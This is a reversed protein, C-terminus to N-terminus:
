SQGWHVQRLPFEACLDRVAAGVEARVAEDLHWIRDGDPRVASLVRDVLGACRIVADDTLGRAALINTGFRLGSTVLPGHPDGDIVNKNAVIGCSELAQEAIVGTLGAQGVDVLVLHNDTGGTLVEYGAGMLEVALADASTRIRQALARFEPTLVLDLARAKAAISDFAPTGQFYPFVANRMVDALPRGRRAAVPADADKGLLILGGRPGYLQKYTSTTTVHAHDVPSPHLGAAILGAVHSIDALLYAGVEDAIARFRAYDITRPYSSAGCVIVRPRHERALTAVQDYDILGARDTGYSVSTFYRGTVSASAGHTLHGGANLAMGLVVDGPSLLSFLVIQNANSGSHPQVNAYRAHFVRQARDIALQEIEDVIASGAHFRAGPYGEATTNGLVSGAAALVSPDAVSAAAIMALTGDQRVREREILGFLEPDARHHGHPDDAARDAFDAINALTM